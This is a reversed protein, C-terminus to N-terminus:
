EVVIERIKDRIEAALEFDLTSAAITMEKKLKSVIKKADMPTLSKTDLNDLVKVVPSKKSDFLEGFEGVAEKVVRQRIPKSIAKPIINYKKNWM